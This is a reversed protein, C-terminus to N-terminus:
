EAVQLSPRAQRRLVTAERVQRETRKKEELRRLVLAALKELQRESLPLDGDLVAVESTIEEVHVPM